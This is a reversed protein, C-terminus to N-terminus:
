SLALYYRHPYCCGPLLMLHRRRLPGLCYGELGDASENSGTAHTSPVVLIGFDHLKLWFSYKFLQRLEIVRRYVTPIKYVRLLGGIKFIPLVPAAEIKLSVTWTAHLV